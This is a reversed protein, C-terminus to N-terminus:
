FRECEYGRSTLLQYIDQWRRRLLTPSIDARYEQENQRREEASLVHLIITRGDGYSHWFPCYGHAELLATITDALALAMGETKHRYVKM